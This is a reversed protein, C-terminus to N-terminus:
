FRVIDLPRIRVNENLVPNGTMPRAFRGPQRRSLARQKLLATNTADREQQTGIFRKKTLGSRMSSDAPTGRQGIIPKAGSTLMPRM